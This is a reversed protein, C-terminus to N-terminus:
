GQRQATEVMFPIGQQCISMLDPKATGTVTVRTGPQLVQEDGGVLNYVQGDSELVLCGTEVGAEVTGNLTLEGSGKDTTPLDQGESPELPPISTPGTSPDPTPTPGSPGSSDSPTPESSGEGIIDGSEGDDDACSAVGVLALLGIAGAAVRLVSQQVISM